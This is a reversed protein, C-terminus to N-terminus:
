SRGGDPLEEPPDGGGPLDSPADVDVPVSGPVEVEVLVLDALLDRAGRDGTVAAARPWVSRALAVPHGPGDEYRARAAEVSGGVAAAVARIVAPEVGPQDALLVVAVQAGEGEAAELGARLSTSQGAAHDPNAVEVVEGGGRAGAVVAEAAHGVVLLVRAVGAAHAARVAHAVLPLGDVEALQKTAGFRSGRGAALVVAVTASTPEGEGAGSTV